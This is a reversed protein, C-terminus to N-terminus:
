FINVTYNNKEKKWYYDSINFDIFGAVTTNM